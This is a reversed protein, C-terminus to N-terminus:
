VSEALVAWGPLACFGRKLARRLRPTSAASRRPALATGGPLGSAKTCSHWGRRARARLRLWRTLGGAAPSAGAQRQWTVAVRASPLQAQWPEEAQETKKKEKKKKKKKAMAQAQSKSSWAEAGRGAKPHSARSRPVAVFLERPPKKKKKLWNPSCFPSLPWTLAFGLQNLTASPQPKARVAWGGRGSYVPARHANQCRQCPPRPLRAGGQGGSYAPVHLSFRGGKPAPLGPAKTPNEAHADLGTHATPPPKTDKKSCPVCPSLSRPAPASGARQQCPSLLITRPALPAGAGSRPPQVPFPFTHFRACGPTSLVLEADHKNFCRELLLSSPARSADPLRAATVAGKQCSRVGGLPTETLPLSSLPSPASGAEDGGEHRPAGNGRGGGRLRHQM